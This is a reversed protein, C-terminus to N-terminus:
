KKLRLVEHLYQFGYNSNNMFNETFNSLGLWIIVLGCVLTFPFGVAFINLQPATRSMVGFTINVILLSTLVPLAFVLAASFM